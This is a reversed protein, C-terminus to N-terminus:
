IWTVFHVTTDSFSALEEATAAGDAYREAVSVPQRHHEEPLLHFVRRVSAVAFLRLKRDSAKGELFELMPMPDKCELWEQETMTMGERKVAQWLLRRHGWQRDGAEQERGCVGRM